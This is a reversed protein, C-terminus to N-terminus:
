IYVYKYKHTKSKRYIGMYAINKHLSLLSTMSIYVKECEYVIYM